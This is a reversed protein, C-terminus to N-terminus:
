AQARAFFAGQPNREQGEGLGTQVIDLGLEMMPRSCKEEFPDAPGAGM